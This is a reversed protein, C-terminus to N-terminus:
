ICHTNPRSTRSSPKCRDFRVGWSSNILNEYFSLSKQMARNLRGYWQQNSTPRLQLKYQVHLRIPWYCCFRHTCFLIRNSRVRVGFYRHETGRMMVNSDIDTANRFNERSVKRSIKSAKTLQVSDRLFRPIIDKSLLVRIWRQWSLVLSPSADMICISNKYNAQSYYTYLYKEDSKTFTSDALKSRSCSLPCLCIWVTGLSLVLVFPM